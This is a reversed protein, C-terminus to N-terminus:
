SKIGEFRSRVILPLELHADRVEGRISASFLLHADWYRRLASWRDIRWADARM